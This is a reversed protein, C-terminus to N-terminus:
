VLLQQLVMQLQESKYLTPLEVLWGVLWEHGAKYIKCVMNICDELFTLHLLSTLTTLCYYLYCYMRKPGQTPDSDFKKLIQYVTGSNQQCNYFWRIFLCILLCVLYLITFNSSVKNTWNTFVNYILQTKNLCTCPLLCFKM